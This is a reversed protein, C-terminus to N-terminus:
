MIIHNSPFEQNFNCYKQYKEPMIVQKWNPPFNAMLGFFGLSVSFESVKAGRFFTGNQGVFFLSSSAAIVDIVVVEIKTDFIGSHTDDYIFFGLM